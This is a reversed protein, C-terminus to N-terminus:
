GDATAEAIRFGEKALAEEVSRNPELGHIVLDYVGYHDDLSGLIMILNGIRDDPCHIGCRSVEFLSLDKGVLWAADIEPLNGETDIIWVPRVLALTTLDGRFQPEAIVDIKGDETKYRCPM